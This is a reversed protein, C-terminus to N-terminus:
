RNVKWWKSWRLLIIMCSFTWGCIICLCICLYIWRQFQFVNHGFFQLFFGHKIVLDINCRNRFWTNNRQGSCVKIPFSIDFWIHISFYGLLFEFPAFSCFSLKNFTILQAFLITQPRSRLTLMALSIHPTSNCLCYISGNVTSPLCHLSLHAVKFLFYM